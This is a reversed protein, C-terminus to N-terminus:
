NLTNVMRKLLKKNFYRRWVYGRIISVVTFIVAILINESTELHIDFYWFVIPQVVFISLGLGSLVNLVNELLSELKTQTM